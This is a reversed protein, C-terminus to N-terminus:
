SSGDIISSRCLTMGERASPEDPIVELVQQFLQVSEECRGSNTYYYSLGLMNFYIATNLSVQGYEGIAYELHEIAGEYNQNRYRAAGLHAHARVLEPDNEVAKQLHEEASPYEGILFYMWGLGDYAAASSEDADIADQFTLIATPIDRTAYYNYALGILLQPSRPESELALQYQEIAAPYYGQLELVTAMHQRAVPSDPDLAVAIDANEQAQAYREPGLAALAGALYAYAEANGSDIDTAARAAQVAEAYELDADIGQGLDNLRDGFALHVAALESWVRDNDPALVVAQEAWKLAEEPRIRSRLLRILPLYFEVRGADLRISDEYLAIAGEIDGDREMLAANAALTAATRTPEATPPAIVVDRVRDANAIIYIGGAIVLLVFLVFLCSPGGRRPKPPRRKIIM